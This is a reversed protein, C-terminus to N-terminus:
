DEAVEWLGEADLLFVRPEDPWSHKKLEARVLSEAEELTETGAAVLSDGVHAEYGVAAGKEIVVDHPRPDQQPRRTTKPM